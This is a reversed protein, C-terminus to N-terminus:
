FANLPKELPRKHFKELCFTVSFSKSLKTETWTLNHRKRTIM